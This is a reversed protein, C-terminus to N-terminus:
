CFVPRAPPLIGFASNAFFLVAALGTFLAALGTMAWALKNFAM